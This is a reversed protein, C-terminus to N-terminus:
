LKEVPTSSQDLLWVAAEQFTQTSWLRFLEMAYRHQIATEVKVSHHCHPYSLHSKWGPHYHFSGHTTQLITLLFHCYFYSAQSNVLYSIEQSTDQLWSSFIRCHYLGVVLLLLLPRRCCCCRWNLVAAVMMAITSLIMMAIRTTTMEVPKFVRRRHHDDDAATRHATRNRCKCDISEASHVCEFCTVRRESLPVQDCVRV